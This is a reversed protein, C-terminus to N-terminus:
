NKNNTITLYHFAWVFIFIPIAFIPVVFIFMAENSGVIGSLFLIIFLIVLFCINKVVLRRKKSDKVSFSAMTICTTILILFYAIGQNDDLKLGIGYGTAFVLALFYIISYILMLTLIQFYNSKM